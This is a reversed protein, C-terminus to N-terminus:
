LVGKTSSVEYSVINIAEKLARGFGKFLSEIKHHENEGYLVEMHLNMKAENSVSKFFEFVNQTDMTGVKDRNFKAKFVLYPRNSLDLVVRSLAEDMPLYMMGYRNIGIKNGLAQYIAQGLALGVDEVTHHDDVDIDGKTFVDLDFNGHFAFLTLMHDFFPIGTNINIQKSGDLNLSLEITTEKTNRNITSMRM